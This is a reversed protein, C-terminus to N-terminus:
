EALSTDCARDTTLGEIEVPVSTEGRYNLTISM